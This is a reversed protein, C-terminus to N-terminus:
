SSGRSADFGVAIAERLAIAWECCEEVSAAKFALCRLRGMGGLVALTKAIPPGTQEVLNFAPADGQEFQCRGLVALGGKRGVSGVDAFWHLRGAKTLVCHCENWTGSADQLALGGQRQYLM